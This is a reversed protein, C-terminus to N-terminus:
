SDDRNAVLNSSDRLRTKSVSAKASTSFAHLLQQLERLPKSVGVITCLMSFAIRLRNEIEHDGYEGIQRDIVTAISKAVEPDHTADYARLQLENFTEAPCSAAYWAWPWTVRANKMDDRRLGDSGVQRLEDLDNRMQLCNGLQCGFSALAQEHDNSAGAAIAVLRAALSTLAGTKRECIGNAIAFVAQQDVEYIKAALDIAQGEHCERITAISIGLMRHQDADNLSLKALSELARFYMWNGTNLALPLGVQRHLTPEGRRLESGDEIDDVILSGAHLTEIADILSRPVDDTGGSIRYSLEVLAARIKAAEAEHSPIM